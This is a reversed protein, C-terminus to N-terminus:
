ATIGAANAFLEDLATDDLGLQSSLALLTPSTRRFEQAHQWALRTIEQTAPDAMMAEVQSLLGAAALAARAQFPSIVMSARAAILADANLRARAAAREEASGKPYAVAFYRDNVHEIVPDDYGLPADGAVHLLEVQGSELIAQWYDRPTGPAVPTVPISARQEPTLTYFQTM